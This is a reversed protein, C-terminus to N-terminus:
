ALAEEIKWKTLILRTSSAAYFELIDVMGTPEAFTPVVDDQFEFYSGWGTICHGGTGDQKIILKYTRGAIINAPNEVTRDATITVTANAGNAADWDISEGDTLKQLAFRNICDDIAAQLETDAAARAVAEQKILLSSDSVNVTVTENTENVTIQITESSM